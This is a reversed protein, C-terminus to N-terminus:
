DNKVITGRSKEALAVAASISQKWAKNDAASGQPNAPPVPNGGSAKSKNYVKLWKDTKAEVDMDATINVESLFDSLWENDTVGKSKMKESLEKRKNAISVRKENEEKDKELAAIREMLAKMEPNDEKHETPPTENQNGNEPHEAKWQKVFDSNDKGVNDNVPNLIELASTVFDPLGMEEDALKAILSDTLSKLTRESMRLTKRGKNTLESKLSELAQENTFKM